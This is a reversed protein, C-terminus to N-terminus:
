LVGSRGTIINEKSSVFASPDFQVPPVGIKKVIRDWGDGKGNSWNYINLFPNWGFVFYKNPSQKIYQELESVSLDKKDEKGATIEVTNKALRYTGEPLVKTTSCSIALLLAMFAAITMYTSRRKM